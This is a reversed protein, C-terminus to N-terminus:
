HCSQSKTFLTWTYADEELLDDIRRNKKPPFPHLVRQNNYILLIDKMENHISLQQGQCMAVIVALLQTIKVINRDTAM